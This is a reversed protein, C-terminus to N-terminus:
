PESRARSVAGKVEIDITKLRIWMEVFELVLAAILLVVGAAFLIMIVFPSGVRGVWVVTALLM